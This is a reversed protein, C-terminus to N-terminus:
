VDCVANEIDNPLLLIILNITLNWGCNATVYCAGVLWDKRVVCVCVCCVTHDQSLSTFMRVEAHDEDPNIRAKICGAVRM